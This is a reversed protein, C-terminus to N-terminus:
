GFLAQQPERNFCKSCTIHHEMWESMGFLGRQKLCGNVSLEPYGIFGLCWQLCCRLCRNSMGLRVAVLSGQFPLNIVRVVAVM